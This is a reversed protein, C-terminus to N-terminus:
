APKQGAIGLQVFLWPGGLTVWGGVLGYRVLRLVLAPEVGAFAVRLGAWLGILIVAGVVFREARHRTTGATDFRVMRRELVVGVGVGVTAGVGTVVDDTHQFLLLALPLLGVIILQLALALRRFWREVAPWGRMFLWLALVGIVYGALVDTPFHVGLYVRSIGVAIAVVVGLAWVWRRRAWGGLFGWVATANQAHASPFGNSPQTEIAKVRPDYTYPRPQDAIVKVVTNALASFVLLVMLRTGLARDVCWYVFPMLLLYFEQSGFFTLTKFLGDLSPSAQQMWLVVDVGWRLIGEM